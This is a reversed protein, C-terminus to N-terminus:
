RVLKSFKPHMKKTFTIVKLAYVADLSTGYYLSGNRFYRLQDMFLLDYDGFRLNRMYAVEAEHAGQGTAIFGDLFMKARLLQILLDCCFEVYENANEDRVGIKEIREALSKFKRHSEGYLSNARNPDSTVKRVVALKLFDEFTKTTM